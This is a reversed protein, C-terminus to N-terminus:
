AISLLFRVEYSCSQKYGEENEYYKMRESVEDLMERIDLECANDM